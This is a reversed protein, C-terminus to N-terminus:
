LHLASLLTSAGVLSERTDGSYEFMGQTTTHTADGNARATVWAGQKLSALVLAPTCWDTRIPLGHKLAADAYGQQLEAVGGVTTLSAFAYVTAPLSDLTLAKLTSHTVRYEFSSDWFQFAQRPNVSAQLDTASWDAPIFQYGPYHLQSTNSFSHSMYLQMPMGPVAAKVSAPFHFSSANLSICTSSFETGGCWLEQAAYWYPDIHYIGIEFGLALKHYRNLANM